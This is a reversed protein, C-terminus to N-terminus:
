RLVAARSTARREEEVEALAHALVNCLAERWRPSMAARRDGPDSLTACEVLVSEPIPNRAPNLMGLERPYPRPALQGCLGTEQFRRALVAALRPPKRGGRGDYIVHGGPRWFHGSSDYHISVFYLPRVGRDWYRVALDARAYLDEPHERGSRLPRFPATEPAADRPPRLEGNETLAASRITFHTTAGASRLVRALTATTRYTLDAERVGSASMGPDIGGHGPDLIVTVGKLTGSPLPGPDFAVPVASSRLWALWLVVSLGLSTLAV